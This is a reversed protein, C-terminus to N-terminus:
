ERKALIKLGDDNFEFVASCLCWAVFYNDGCGEFNPGPIVIAVAGTYNCVPCQREEISIINGERDIIEAKKM